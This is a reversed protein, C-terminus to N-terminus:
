RPCPASISLPRGWQVIQARTWRQGYNARPAKGAEVSALECARTWSGVRQVLLVRSFLNLERAVEDYKKGTLPGDVLDGVVYMQELLKADAARAFLRPVAGLLRRADPGLAERVARPWVGLADAVDQVTRLHGDAM